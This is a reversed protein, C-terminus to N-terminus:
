LKIYKRLAALFNDVSYNEWLKHQGNYSLTHTKELAEAMAQETQEEFLLGNVGESILEAAGSGAYCVVPTGFYLSELATYGFDESQPMLAGKAKQYIYALEEEGVEGLFSVNRMNKAQSELTRKRSGEGVVVLNDQPRGRFVNLLLDVKKYPELRGVFLYYHAPLGRPRKAQKKLRAFYATDFPPALLDSNRRYIKRVLDQGYRSLTLLRDPRQAAIYDWERLFATMPSFFPSRSFYHRKEHWLHRTPSFLYSVHNTEPRTLVGKVFSSSVSLVSDYGTLDLSEAAYPMLPTKIPKLPIRGHVGQLFTTKIRGAYPKAWGAKGFDTYLTYIDAKPFAEFLTILIREAGGWKDIWDYLIATRKM